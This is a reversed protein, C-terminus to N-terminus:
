SAIRSLGPPLTRGVLLLRHGPPLEEVLHLLLLASAEGAHGVEDVVLLVPDASDSLVQVLRDVSASPDGHGPEVADAADSLGSRRLARSLRAVLLQPEDDGPELRVVACAIGLARALEIALVTKGYGGGALVVGIPAERLTAVLRPRAVHFRPLSNTAAPMKKSRTATTDDAARGGVTL